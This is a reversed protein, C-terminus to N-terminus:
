KDRENVTLRQLFMYQHVIVFGVQAAEEKTMVDDKKLEKRIIDKIKKRMLRANQYQFSGWEARMETGSSTAETNPEDSWPRPNFQIVEDTELIRQDELVDADFKFSASKWKQDTNIGRDEGNESPEEDAEEDGEPTARKDRCSTM